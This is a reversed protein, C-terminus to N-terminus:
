CGVSVEGCSYVLTNCPLVYANYTRSYIGEVRISVSTNQGKDEREKQVCIYTISNKSRQLLSVWHFGIAHAKMHHTFDTRGAPKIIIRFTYKWPPERWYFTRIRRFMMWSRFVNNVSRAYSRDSHGSNITFCECRPTWEWICTNYKNLYGAKVLKLGKRCAHTGINIVVHIWTTRDYTKIQGVIVSTSRIIFFASTIMNM